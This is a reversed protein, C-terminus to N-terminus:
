CSLGESELPSCELVFSGAFGPALPEDALVMVELQPYDAAAAAVVAVSDAHPVVLVVRTM